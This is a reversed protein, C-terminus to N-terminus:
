LLINKPKIVTPKFDFIGFYNKSVETAGCKVGKLRDFNQYYCKRTCSQTKCAQQM